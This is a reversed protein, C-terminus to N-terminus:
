IQLRSCNLISMYVLVLPLVSNNFYLIISKLTCFTIRLILVSRYVIWVKFEEINECVLGGGGTAPPEAGAGAEQGPGEMEMIIFTEFELYFNM